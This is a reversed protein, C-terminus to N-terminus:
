LGNARRPDSCGPCTGVVPFHAFSPEWGTAATIASRAELLTSSPVSRHAGCRDCYLHETEVRDALTYLGPGHGLHVHRVLGAAELADLNGYVSARDVPAQAGELGEAIEAATLPTRAAFLAEIVRRRPASVRM